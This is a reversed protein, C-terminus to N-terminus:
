QNEDFVDKEPEPEPQEDPIQWEGDPSQILDTVQKDTLGYKRAMRRKEEDTYNVRDRKIISVDDTIGIDMSPMQEAPNDRQEFNHNLQMKIEAGSKVARSDANKMGERILWDSADQVTAREIHETSVSFRGVLHDFLAVDNSIETITRDKGPTIRLVRVLEQARADGGSAKELIVAYERQAISRILDQARIQKDTLWVQYAEYVIMARLRQDPSMRIRSINLGGKLWREVLDIYQPSLRGM